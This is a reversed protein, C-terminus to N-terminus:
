LKGVSAAWGLCDFCYRGAETLTEQSENLLEALVVVDERGAGVIVGCAGTARNTRGEKCLEGTQAATSLSDLREGVREDFDSCAATTITQHARQVAEPAERFLVIWQRPLILRQEFSFIEAMPGSRSSHGCNFSRM